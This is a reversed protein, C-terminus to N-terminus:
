QLGPRHHREHERDDAADEVEIELQGFPHAM